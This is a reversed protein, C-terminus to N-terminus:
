FHKDWFQRFTHVKKVNSVHEIILAYETKYPREIFWLYIMETVAIYCLSKYLSSSYFMTKVM